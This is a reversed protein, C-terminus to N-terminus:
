GWGPWLRVLVLLALQGNSGTVFASRSWGDLVGFGLRLWVGFDWVSLGTELHARSLDGADM